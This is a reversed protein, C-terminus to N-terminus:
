PKRRLVFITGFGTRGSEKGGHVSNPYWPIGQVQPKMSLLEWDESEMRKAIRSPFFFTHPVGELGAYSREDVGIEGLVYSKLTRVLGFILRLSGLKGHSWYNGGGLLTWSIPSWATPLAVIIYKKAIRKQEQLGDNFSILHELVHCTVSVDFEVSSFKSDVVDGVQFDIVGSSIVDIEGINQNAALINGESIDTGVIRKFGHDLFQVTLSGDGCGLDIISELGVPCASVLSTHMLRHVRSRIEFPSDLRKKRFDESYKGYKESLEKQNWESNNSKSM